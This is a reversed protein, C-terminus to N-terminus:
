RGRSRRPPGPAAGHVPLDPHALADVVDGDVLVAEIRGVEDEVRQREREAGPLLIQAAVPDLRDLRDPADLGLEGARRRDEADRVHAEPELGREPVHEVADEQVLADFGAEVGRDDVRRADHRHVLDVVVHALEREVEHVVSPGVAVVREVLQHSRELVDVRARDLLLVARAPRDLLPELVPDDVALAVTELEVEVLLERAHGRQADDVVHQEVAHLDDTLQERGALHLQREHQLARLRHLSGDRVELRVHLLVVGAALAREHDARDLTVHVVDALVEDVDDERVVAVLHVVDPDLRRQLREDVLRLLDLGVRDAHAAQEHLARDDHALVQGLHVREPKGVHGHEEAARRQRAGVDLM